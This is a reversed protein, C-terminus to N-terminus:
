QVVTITMSWQTPPGTFDNDFNDRFRFSMTYQGPGPATGVISITTNEGPEPLFDAPIVIPNTTTLAPGSVLYLESGEPWACNGSNYFIFQKIFVQGAKVPVTENVREVLSWKYQCITIVGITTGGTSGGTSPAALDGSGTAGGTTGGTSGTDPAAIDGGGTGPPADDGGTSPAVIDGGGGTTAGGTTGGGSTGGDAGGGSNDGPGGGIVVEIQVHFEPGFPQNDPTVFQYNAQYAGPNDPAVFDMAVDRSQGAATAGQLATSAPGGMQNGSVFVAQLGSPWEACGTNSLTWTKTFPSAPALQTGDPVTVDAVFAADYGCEAAEVADPGDTQADQAQPTTNEAVATMAEDLAQQSIEGPQAGCAIGVLAMLVLLLGMKGYKM